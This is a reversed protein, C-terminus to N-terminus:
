SGTNGTQGTGTNGSSGTSGTQGKDAPKTGSGFAAESTKDTSPTKGADTSESGSNM